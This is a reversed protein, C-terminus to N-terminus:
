RPRGYMGLTRQSYMVINPVSHVKSRIYTDNMCLTPLYTLLYTHLLASTELTTQIGRLFFFVSVNKISSNSFSKLSSFLFLIFRLISWIFNVWISWRLELHKQEASPLKPSKSLWYDIRNKSLVAGLSRCSGNCWHPPPM